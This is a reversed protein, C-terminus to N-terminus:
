HRPKDFYQEVEKQHVKFENNDKYSEEYYSTRYDIKGNTSLSKEAM